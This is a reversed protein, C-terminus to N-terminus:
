GNHKETQPTDMPLKNIRKVAVIERSFRDIAKFVTAFNGSHFINLVFVFVFVIIIQMSLYSFKKSRLDGAKVGQLKIHNCHHSRPDCLKKSTECLKTHAYTTTLKHQLFIV